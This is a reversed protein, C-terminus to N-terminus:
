FMGDVIEKTREETLIKVDCGVFSFVMRIADSQMRRGCMLILWIEEFANIVHLKNYMSRQRMTNTHLREDTVVIGNAGLKDMHNIHYENTDNIFMYGNVSECSRFISEFHGYGRPLCQLPLTYLNLLVKERDINYNSETLIGSLEKEKIGVESYVDLGAITCFVRFPLVNHIIFILHDVMSYCESNSILFPPTIDFIRDVCSEIYMILIDYTFGDMLTIKKNGDYMTALTNNLLRVIFRMRMESYINGLERITVVKRSVFGEGNYLVRGNQDVKGRRRDLEEPTLVFEVYEGFMSASSMYITDICVTTIGDYRSCLDYTDQIIDSISYKLLATGVKGTQYDHGIRCVGDANILRTRATFINFLMRWLNEIKLTIMLMSHDSSFVLDRVTTFPRISCLFLNFEEIHLLVECDSLSDFNELLSQYVENLRSKWQVEIVVSNVFKRIISEFKALRKSIDINSFFKVGGAVKEIYGFGSREFNYDGDNRVLLDRLPMKESPTRVYFLEKSEIHNIYLFFKLIRNFSLM